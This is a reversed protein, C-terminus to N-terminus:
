RPALGVSIYNRVLAAHAGKDTVISSINRANQNGCKLNESLRFGNKGFRGWGGYIM